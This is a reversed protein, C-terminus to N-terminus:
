WGGGGGGGGGGGSFGGGGSGGSSSSSPSAYSVGTSSFTNMASGFSYANFGRAGSYWDPQAKAAEYYQGLQQGWQKELGFLVAYPLVREYLKILETPSSADVSVGVKAAGEPSQLMKIRDTEAVKIYDKLGLLYRRLELGKDSLQWLTAGLIFSTISVVFMLPSLLVISLVLLVWGLKKFWKKDQDFQARLGYEGRLRKKLDGTNNQIRTYFGTSKQLTKLSLKSGVDVAGSFLDRILEQEEWKLGDIPRVIELDYEPKKFMSKEQTQYIKLYHRVALDLIQATM